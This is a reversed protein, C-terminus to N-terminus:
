HTTAGAFVYLRPGHIIPRTYLWRRGMKLRLIKSCRSVGLPKLCYKETLCSTCLAIEMATVFWMIRFRLWLFYTTRSDHKNTDDNYGNYHIYWLCVPTSICKILWHSYQHTCLCASLDKAGDNVWLQLWICLQYPQASLSTCHGGDRLEPAM